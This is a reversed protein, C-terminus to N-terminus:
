RGLSIMFAVVLILFLMNFYFTVTRTIKKYTLGFHFISEKETSRIQVSFYNRFEGTKM